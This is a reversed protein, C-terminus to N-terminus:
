RNALLLLLMLGIAATEILLGSVNVISIFKKPTIKNLIRCFLIGIIGGFTNGMLDTIDSAGIAFIFQLVEFLFSIGLVTLCKAANSWDAKLIQIYVGLPVFVLINYLVEKLHTSTEQSYYFPILNISRLNPLESLNTSFKFLVLWILLLFYVSFVIYAIRKQKVSQFVKAM